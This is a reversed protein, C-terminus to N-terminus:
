HARAYTPRSTHGIRTYHTRARDVHARRASIASFRGGSSGRRVYLHDRPETTDDQGHDDGDVGVTHVEGGRKVEVDAM